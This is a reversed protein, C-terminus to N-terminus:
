PTYYLFRTDDTCFNCEIVLRIFVKDNLLLVKVKQSAKFKKISNSAPKIISSVQFSYEVTDKIFTKEIATDISFSDKKGDHYYYFISLSDSTIIIKHNGTKNSTLHNLSYGYQNYFLTDNIISINQSKLDVLSLFIFVIIPYVFRM